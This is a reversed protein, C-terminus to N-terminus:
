STWKVGHSLSYQRHGRVSLVTADKYGGSGGCLIRCCLADALSSTCSQIVNFCYKNPFIINQFHSCLTVKYTCFYPVYTVFLYHSRKLNQKDGRIM